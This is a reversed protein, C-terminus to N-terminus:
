CANERWAGRAFVPARCAPRVTGLVNGCGAPTGVAAGAGARPGAAGARGDIRDHGAGSRWRGRAARHYAPRSVVCQQWLDQMFPTGSADFARLQEDSCYDAFLAQATDAFARQDESLQFNMRREKLATVPRFLPLVLDDDFTNFEVQVAQGINVEDPKVGVLQSVLRTGEELEVLAIPNPHDFPPVEPYHMVVFSYM